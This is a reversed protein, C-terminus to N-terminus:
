WKDNQKNTNVKIRLKVNLFPTEGVYMIPRITNKYIFFLVPTSNWYYDEIINLVCFYIYRVMYTCRARFADVIHKQSPQQVEQQKYNGPIYREEFISKGTKICVYVFLSKILKHLFFLLLDTFSLFTYITQM